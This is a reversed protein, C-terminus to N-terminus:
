PTVRPEVPFVAWQLEVRQGADGHSLLRYRDALEAIEAVLARAQEPVLRLRVDVDTCAQQWERPWETVTALWHALRRGREAVTERLLFEAAERTEARALFEFGNMVIGGPVLRWWRERGSVPLEEIFGHRALQRLHYSTAGSTESLRAALTTATAREEDRLVDPIQV